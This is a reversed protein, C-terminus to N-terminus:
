GIHPAHPLKFVHVFACPSSFTQDHRRYERQDVAEDNEDPDLTMATSMPTSVPNLEAMNFTMM